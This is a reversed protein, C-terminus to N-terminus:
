EGAPKPTQKKPDLFAIDKLRSRDIMLTAGASQDNTPPPLHVFVKDKGMLVLSIEKTRAVAESGDTSQAAQFLEPWERALSPDTTMVVPIGGGQSLLRLSLKM